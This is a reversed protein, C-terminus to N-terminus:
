EKYVCLEEQHVLRAHGDSLSATGTRVGPVSRMADVETATSGALKEPGRSGEAWGDRPRDDGRWREM